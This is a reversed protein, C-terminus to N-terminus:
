SRRARRAPTAPRRRHMHADAAHADFDGRLEAHQRPLDQYKEDFVSVQVRFQEAMVNAVEKAIEAGSKQIQVCLRVEMAVMEGRLETMEGRLMTTTQNLDGRLDAMEGRLETRLETMEGRLETMEGRLETMEGRLESIEGRLETRLESIEGRLMTTAQNIEGRLTTVTRDLAHDLDVRTILENV